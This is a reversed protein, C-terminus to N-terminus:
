LLYVFVFSFTFFNFIWLALMLVIDGDVSFSDERVKGFRDEEPPFVQYTAFHQLLEDKREWRSDLWGRVGTEYDMIEEMSFVQSSIHINNSSTGKLLNKYTPVKPNKLVDKATEPLDGSYSSYCVTMDYIEVNPRGDLRDLCAELENANPLLLTQLSPRHENADSENEEEIADQNAWGREPFVAIWEYANDKALQDLYKKIRKKDVEDSKVNDNRNLFTFGFLDFIAGLGFARNREVKNIFAKVKGHSDDIAKALMQIYLIDCESVSNMVVIRIPAVDEPNSLSSSSSLASFQSSTSARSSKSARSSISARKSSKRKSARRKSGPIPFGGRPEKVADPVDGTINFLLPPAMWAIADVWIREFNRAIFRRSASPAVAAKLLSKAFGGVMIVSGTASIIGVSRAISQVSPPLRLFSKHAQDLIATTAPSLNMYQQRKKRLSGIENGGDRPMTSYTKLYSTSNTVNTAHRIQMARNVANIWDHAESESLARFHMQHEIKPLLDDEEDSLDLGMVFEDTEAEKKKSPAVVSAHDKSTWKLEFGMEDGKVPEVSVVSDLMIELRKEGSASEPMVIVKQNDIFVSNPMWDGIVHNLLLKDRKRMRKGERRQTRLKGSKIVSQTLKQMKGEWKEEPTLGADAGM